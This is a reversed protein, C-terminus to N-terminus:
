NKIKKMRKIAKDLESKPTKPTKKKFATLLYFTDSSNDLFFTIRLNDVRIENLGSGLPKVDEVKYLDSPWEEEMIEIIKKFNMSIKLKKSELINKEIFDAVDKHAIEINRQITVGGVELLM